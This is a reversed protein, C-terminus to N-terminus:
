SVNETEEERVKLEPKKKERKILNGDKDYDDLNIMEGEFEFVKYPLYKKRKLRKILKKKAQEKRSLKAYLDRMAKDDIPPEIITGDKLVKAKCNLCKWYKKNFSGKRKMRKGCLPCNKIKTEKSRKRM